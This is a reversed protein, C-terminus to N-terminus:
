GGRKVTLTAQRGDGTLCVEQSPNTYVWCQGGTASKPIDSTTCTWIGTESDADRALCPGGPDIAQFFVQDPPVDKWAACTWVGWTRHDRVETTCISSKTPRRGVVASGRDGVYVAPGGLPYRLFLAPV